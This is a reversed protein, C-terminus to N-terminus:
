VKGDRQQVLKQFYDRKIQYGPTRERDELRLKELLRDADSVYCRRERYHQMLGTLAKM